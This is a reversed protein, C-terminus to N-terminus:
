FVAGIALGEGLNHLGIGVAIMYALMLRQSAENRGVAVQRKTIADLLFFTGVTGIGILGIGQFPGPVAGAQEIAEALTDLGLFVLLGATVALLFTMTHKSLKRLAPFWALGLFIPIVGVYLGILTYALFTSQTPEPTEVAVPIEVDFPIANSTFFRIRYAEGYSWNYQLHIVSSGLRPIITDSSSTFPWIADNIIVQAIQLDNRGANRVSVEIQGPKLVTREFSLAEVPIPETLMILGGGTTLFLWIIGGLIVLPLILLVITTLNFKRDSSDSVTNEAM